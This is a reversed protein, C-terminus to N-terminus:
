VIFLTDHVDRERKVLILEVWLKEVKMKWKTKIPQFDFAKKNVKAPQQLNHSLGEM